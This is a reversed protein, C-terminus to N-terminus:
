KLDWQPTHLSSPLKPKLLDPWCHTLGSNQLWFSPIGHFEMASHGGLPGVASQVCFVLIWLVAQAESGKQDVGTLEIGLCGEPSSKM